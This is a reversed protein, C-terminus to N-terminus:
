RTRRRVSRSKIRGRISALLPRFRSIAEYWLGPQRAALRAELSALVAAKRAPAAPLDGRDRIQQLVRERRRRPLSSLIPNRWPWEALALCEAVVIDSERRLILAVRAGGADRIREYPTREAHLMAPPQPIGLERLEELLQELIGREREPMRGLIWARDEVNVGHLALAARKMGPTM